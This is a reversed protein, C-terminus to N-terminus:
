RETYTGSSNQSKQMFNFNGPVFPKKNLATNQTSETKTAISNKLGVETDADAAVLVAEPPLQLAVVVHTPPDTGPLPSVTVIAEPAVTVTVAFAAAVEMVKGVGEAAVLTIIFEPWVSATEPAMVIGSPDPAPEFVSATPEPVNVAPLIAKVPAALALFCVREIEVPVTVTEPSIEILPLLLFLAPTVIVPAPVSLTPPANKLPEFLVPSM